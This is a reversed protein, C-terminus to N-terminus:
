LTNFRAKEELVQLYYTLYRTKGHRIESGSGLFVLVLLALSPEFMNLSVLWGRGGLAKVSTSNSTTIEIM